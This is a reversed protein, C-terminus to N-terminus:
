DLFMSWPSVLNGPYWIVTVPLVLLALVTISGVWSRYRQGDLVLRPLTYLLVSLVAPTSLCVLVRTQDGTSLTAALPIVFVALVLLSARVSSARWLAVVAILIAILAVGYGSYPLNPLNRLSVQLSDALLSAFVSTRSPVGTKWALVQMIVFVPTMLFLAFLGYRAQDRLGMAFSALVFCGVALLSQEPNGALMLLGGVMILWYRRGCLGIILGGGITLLDHRGFGSLLTAAIPGLFVFSTLMLAIVPEVVSRIMLVVLLALVLLLCGWILWSAASTQLGLVFYITRLGYSLSETGSLPQPFVDSSFAVDQISPALTFGSHLVALTSFLLFISLSNRRCLWTQVQELWASVLRVSDLM